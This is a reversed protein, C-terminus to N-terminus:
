APPNQSRLKFLKAFFVLPSTQFPGLYVDSSEFYLGFKLFVPNFPFHGLRLIKSTAGEAQFFFFSVAM